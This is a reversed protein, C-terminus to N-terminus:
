KVICSIPCLSLLLGQNIWDAEYSEKRGDMKCSYQDVFNIFVLKQYASWSCNFCWMYSLYHLCKIFPGFIILDNAANKREKWEHLAWWTVQLSCYCQIQNFQLINNCTCHIQWHRASWTNAEAPFYYDIISLDTSAVSLDCHEAWDWGIHFIIVAILSKLDVILCVSWPRRNTERYRKKIRTRTEPGTISRRGAM